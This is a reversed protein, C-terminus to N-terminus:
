PPTPRRHRRISPTSRQLETACLCCCCCSSEVPFSPLPHLDLVSRRGFPPITRHHQRHDPDVSPRVSHRTYHALPKALSWGALRGHILVFYHTTHTNKKTTSRNQPASCLLCVFWGSALIAHNADKATPNRISHLPARRRIRRITRETPGAAKNPIKTCVLVLLLVVLQCRATSRM